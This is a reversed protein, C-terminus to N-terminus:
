KKVKVWTAEEVKKYKTGCTLCTRYTNIDNSYGITDGMSVYYNPKDERLLAEHKCNNCDGLIVGGLRGEMAEIREVLYGKAMAEDKREKRIRGIEARVDNNVKEIRGRAETDKM